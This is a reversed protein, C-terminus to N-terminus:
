PRQKVSAFSALASSALASSVDVDLGRSLRPLALLHLALLHLALMLPEMQRGVTAWCSRRGTLSLM